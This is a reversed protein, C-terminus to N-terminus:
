FLMRLALLLHHEEVHLRTALTKFVRLDPSRQFWSCKRTSKSETTLDLDQNTSLSLSQNISLKNMTLSPFHNHFGSLIFYIIFFLTFFLPAATEM